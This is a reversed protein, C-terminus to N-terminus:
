KKIEKNAIKYIERMRKEIKPLDQLSINNSSGNVPSTSNDIFTDSTNPLRLNKNSFKVNSFDFDYYFGNEIAPGIGFQVGPYLEKVAQALIHSLSHRITEEKM